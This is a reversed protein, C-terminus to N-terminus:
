SCNSPPAHPAGGDLTLMRTLPNVAESKIDGQSPEITALSEMEGQGKIM